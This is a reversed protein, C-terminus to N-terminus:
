HLGQDMAVSAFAAEWCHRCSQKSSSSSRGSTTTTTTTTLTAFLRFDPHCRESKGGGNGLPLLRDKFLPVLSAQIEAPVRDIDELLVWKGERVARTLAGPRWEFAGPIDTATYSGVLTKTDTEEDVHIELLLDDHSNNNNNGAFMRVLERVLSSKGAGKPGCILISPSPEICLAAGILSLNQATTPTRVLQQQQQQLVPDSGNSSTKEEEKEVANNNNNNNHKCFVLGDGVHVLYLRHLPVLDRIAQVSPLPFIDDNDWIKTKGMFHLTQYDVQEHDDQWPHMIWPVHHMEDDVSHLKFFEAKAGPPLNLVYAAVRVAYWKTADELSFPFSPTNNNNNNNDDSTTDMRSSSGDENDIDIEAADANGTTKDTDTGFWGFVPSWNWWKLIVSHERRRSYHRCIKFAAEVLVFRRSQLNNNNNNALLLPCSSQLFMHTVLPTIHPAVGLWESFLVFAAGAHQQQQQLDHDQQQTVIEVVRAAVDIAIPAMARLLRRLYDIRRHKYQLLADDDNDNTYDQVDHECPPIVFCDRPLRRSKHEDDDDDYDMMMWQRGPDDAACAALLGRAIHEMYCEADENDVQMMAADANNGRTTTGALTQTADLIRQLYGVVDVPQEEEM